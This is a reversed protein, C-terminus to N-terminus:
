AGAAQLMRGGFARNAAIVLGVAAVHVVLDTASADYPHFLNLLTAAAAASALGATAAALGPRLAYARRLMALLLASLPVSIALIFIICDKSDNIDAAHIGPVLWTRLCGAGSAAIWLGAAPLPVLAWLPNRDPLSLQFAAVAALVMTLASGVATLWMDPAADLRAAVATRDAMASLALGAAVVVALWILARAGPPRLPKVPKLDAALSQIIREHRSPPEAIPPRM